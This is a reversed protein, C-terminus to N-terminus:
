EESLADLDSKIQYEIALSSRRNNAFELFLLKMEHQM